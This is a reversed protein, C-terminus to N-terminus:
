LSLGHKRASLFFGLLRKVSERVAINEPKKKTKAEKKKKKLASGTEKFDLM